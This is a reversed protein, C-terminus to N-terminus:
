SQVSDPFPLGGSILGGILWWLFIVAGVVGLGFILGVLVAVGTEFVPKLREDFPWGKNRVFVLAGLPIGTTVVAVLLFGFVLRFGDPLFQILGAPDPLEPLILGVRLTTAGPM